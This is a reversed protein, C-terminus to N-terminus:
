HMCGIYMETKLTYATKVKKQIIVLASDAIKQDEYIGSILAMNKERTSQQYFNMYEISLFEDPFRRPFYDGAYMEDADDAPLAILDRTVDYSRNLTDVTLNLSNGIEYMRRQLESYVLGTDVVVLYYTAYDSYELVAENKGDNNAKEVDISDERVIGCSLLFGITFGSFLVHIKRM